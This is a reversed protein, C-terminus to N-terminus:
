GLYAKAADGYYMMAKVLAAVPSNPEMGAAYSEVSYAATKSIPEGNRCVTATVTERMQRATLGGFHVYYQNEGIPVFDAGDIQWTVGAATLRMSVGTLDECYVQYRIIVADTLTLGAGLFRAETQTGSQALVSKYTIEHSSGWSLQESTLEGNVPMQANYNVYAQHATAYNLLDVILTRLKGDSSKKLQSYCYDSARYTNEYVCDEGQWTGLMRIQIVDNMMRPAVGPLVFRVMDGEGDQYQTVTVTKDAVTFEMRVNEFNELTKRHVLFSVKLDNGLTLSAGRIQLAGDGEPLAPQSPETFSDTYSDGCTTCTHTTYGQAQQTPPTVVSQYTHGAAEVYDECALSEGCVACSIHTYGMEVCTPPVIEETEQHGLAPIVEQAEFIEGCRDCYSGRTMGSTTCTAEVREATVTNHGLAPLSNLYALSCGTCNQIEYGQETCGPEQVTQWDGLHHSGSSFITQSYSYGCSQCVYDTYGDDGCTAEMTEGEAFSHSCGINASVTFTNQHLRTIHSDSVLNGDAIYHNTVTATLLYTFEGQPLRGFTLNNDVRSSRVTYSMSDLGTDESVMYPTDSVATGEFIYAGVQSIPLGDSSIVGAIPFGKGYTTHIPASIDRVSLVTEAPTFEGAANAPLYCFGGEWRTEYWYEGVSNRYLGVIDLITGGSVAAVDASDQHTDTRCPYSKLTLEAPLTVQGHSNYVDCSGLYGSVLPFPASRVHEFYTRLQSKTTVGGWRINCSRNRSNCDAFTVTEGDVGIVYISHGNRRVIDGPKINNLASVSTYTYWGNANLRPNYGTADYGLKEAFGMCQISMGMFSNCGCSGNYPCSGHHTCPTNTWGDPNGGNWYKGDPFKAMLQDMTLGKPAASVSIPPLWSFALMFILLVSLAQLIPKKIKKM